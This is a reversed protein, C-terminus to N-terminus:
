SKIRVERPVSELALVTNMERTIAIPDSGSTIRM